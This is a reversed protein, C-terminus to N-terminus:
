QRDFVRVGIPIPAYTRIPDQFEVVTFVPDDVEPVYGLYGHFRLRGGSRGRSSLFGAPGDPEM